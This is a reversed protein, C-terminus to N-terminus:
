AAGFNYEGNFEIEGNWYIANSRYDMEVLRCRLPAIQELWKKIKEAESNTIPRSLKIKYEAWDGEQGGFVFTGDFYATGDWYLSGYNEIIEIDGYGLDKFLQRIVSPTGKREHIKIYEAVIRRRAAETEAIDWGEDSGISKEWALWPLWEPPCDVPRRTRAIENLDFLQALEASTLKSLAHQLETSSSPKISETM